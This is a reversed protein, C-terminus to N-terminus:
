FIKLLLIIFASFLTAILVGKARHDRKLKLFGFFAAMNLLAGLAVLSGLHGQQRAAKLSEEVGLESFLLLYLIIGIANAILGVAIGTAIEKKIM